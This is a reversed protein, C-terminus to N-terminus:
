SVYEVQLAPVSAVAEKVGDVIESANQKMAVKLQRQNAKLESVVNAFGDSAWNRKSAATGLRSEKARLERDMPGMPDRYMREPKNIVGDLKDLMGGIGDYLESRQSPVLKKDGGGLDVNEPPPKPPERHPRFGFKSAASDFLSGLVRMAPDDGEFFSKPLLNRMVQDYVRHAIGKPGVAPVYQEWNNAVFTMKDIIGDLHLGVGSLSQNLFQAGDVAETFAAKAALGFEFTVKRNEKFWERLGLLGESTQDIAERVPKGFGEFFAIGAGEAASGFRLLSGPLSDNMAAAMEEASGKSNEIKDRLIDVQDGAGALVLAANGGIKGFIDFAKATRDAESMREFRDGLDGMIDLFPRIEDNTDVIAVGMDRIKQATDENTIAVFANKLGTGAKSAKIGSNALLGLATSAEEITQGAAKAMPAVETFAEGMMEVTTNSSTATKALVDAVRQIEDATLGFASAVDSAIDAAMGLEMAGAAALDLTPGIGELIQKTDFGAMGLFKMGEAAQTASFQTKAGLDQAKESLLELEVGAAGTIAAVHAMGADFAAFKQFSFATAAAAGAITAATGMTIFAKTAKEAAGVVVGGMGTISRSFSGADKSVKTFVASAKNRAGIDINIDNAM